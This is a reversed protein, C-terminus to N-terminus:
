AAALAQWPRARGTRLCSYRTRLGAPSLRNGRSSLFFAADKPTPYIADRHQVYGCLAQRTTAHVPVLRDKRFKAQRIHLVGNVLDVDARDLRLAEGLAIGHQGAIRGGTGAGPAGRIIKRFM